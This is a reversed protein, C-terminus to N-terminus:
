GIGPKSFIQCNMANHQTLMVAVSTGKMIAAAAEKDLAIEDESKQDTDKCSGISQAPMRWKVKKILPVYYNKQDKAPKPNKSLYLSLIIKQM